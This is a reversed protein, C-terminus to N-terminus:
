TDSRGHFSCSLAWRWTMPVKSPMEDILPGDNLFLKGFPGVYIVGFEVGM